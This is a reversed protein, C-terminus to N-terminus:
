PQQEWWGRLSERADGLAEWARALYDPNKTYGFEWMSVYHRCNKLCGRAYDLRSLGCSERLNPPPDGLRGAAVDLCAWATAAYQRVQGEDELALEIATIAVRLAGLTTEDRFIGLKGAAQEITLEM